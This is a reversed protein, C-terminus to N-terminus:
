VFFACPFENKRVGPQCNINLPKIQWNLREVVEESSQTLSTTGLM